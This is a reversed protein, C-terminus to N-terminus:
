SMMGDREQKSVPVGTTFFLFNGAHVLGVDHLETITEEEVSESPDGLLVLGRADLEVVHNNIVRIHSTFARFYGRCERM